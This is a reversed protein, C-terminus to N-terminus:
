AGGLLVLRMEVVLGKHPLDPLLPPSFIFPVSPKQYRKQAAPDTAIMRGFAHHGACSPSQACGHCEALPCGAVERFAKEFGGKLCFLAASNDHDTDLRLSIRLNIFTLDVM